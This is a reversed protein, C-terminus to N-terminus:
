HNLFCVNLKDIKKGKIKGQIIQLANEGKHVLENKFFYHKVDVFCLLIWQIEHMWIM